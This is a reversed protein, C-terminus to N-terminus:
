GVIEGLANPNIMDERWRGAWWRMPQLTWGDQEAECGWGQRVCSQTVGRVCRIGDERLRGDEVVRVDARRRLRWWRDKWGRLGYTILWM